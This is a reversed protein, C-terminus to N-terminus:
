PALSGVAADLRARFGADDTKVRRLADRALDPRSRRGVGVLAAVAGDRVAPDELHPAIWPIAAPPALGGLARLAADRVLPSPDRLLPRLGTVHAPGGIEAALACLGRGLAPDAGSYALLLGSFEEKRRKADADRFRATVAARDADSVMGLLKVLARTEDPLSAPLPVPHGDWATSAAPASASTRPRDAAPATWRRADPAWTPPAAPDATPARPVLPNAADPAPPESPPDYLGRPAPDEPLAAYLRSAAAPELPADGVEGPAGSPDSADATPPPDEGWWPAREARPRDGAMVRLAEAAAAQVAPDPDRRLRDLEGRVSPGGVNGLLSAARARVGPDPSSGVLRRLAPVCGTDVWRLLHDLAVRVQEPDPGDLAARLPGIGMEKAAIAQHVAWTRVRPDPDRVLEAVVPIGDRPGLVAAVRLAGLRQDDTGEKARALAMAQLKRRTWSLDPDRATGAAIAEYVADIDM